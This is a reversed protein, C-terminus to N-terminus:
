GQQRVTGPQYCQARHDWRLGLSGPSANRAYSRSVFEETERGGAPDNAEGKRYKELQEQGGDNSNVVRNGNTLIM